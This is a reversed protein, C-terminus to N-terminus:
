RILLHVLADVRTNKVVLEAADSNAVEIVAFGARRLREAFVSRCAVNEEVILFIPGEADVVVPAPAGLSRLM